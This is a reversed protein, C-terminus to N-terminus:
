VAQGADGLSRRMLQRRGVLGLASEPQGSEQWGRIASFLMAVFCFQKTQPNM